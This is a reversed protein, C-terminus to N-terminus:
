GCRLETATRKAAKGRVSRSSKRARGRGKSQRKRVSVRKKRAAAIVGCFVQKILTTKKDM